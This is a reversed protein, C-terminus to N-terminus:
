QKKVTRLTLGRTIAAYMQELTIKDSHIQQQLSKATTADIVYAKGEKTLSIDSLWLEEAKVSPNDNLAGGVAGVVTLLWGKKFSTNFVPKESIITFSITGPQQGKAPICMTRTIDAILNINKEIGACLATAAPSTSTISATPQGASSPTGQQVIEEALRLPWSPDRLFDPREQQYRKYRAVFESNLKSGAVGIEPYRRVAEQQAAAATAFQPTQAATPPNTPRAVSPPNSAQAVTAVPSATPKPASTISPPSPDDASKHLGFYTAVGVVLFIIFAVAGLSSERAQQQQTPPQQFCIILAALVGPIWGFLTLVCVLLLVGCGKDLVALPPFFLCILVRLIGM